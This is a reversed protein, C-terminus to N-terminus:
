AIKKKRRRAVTAGALGTGFLSMTLPEPVSTTRAFTVDLAALSTTTVSNASLNLDISNNTYSFATPTFNSSADLTVGIINPAGAFNFVFGNFIGNGHTVNALPSYLIQNGTINIQFATNGLISGNPFTIPQAGVVRSAIQIPPEGM